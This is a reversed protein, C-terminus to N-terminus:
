LLEMALFFIRVRDMFEWKEEPNHHKVSSEVYKTATLKIRSPERLVRLFGGVELFDSVVGFLIYNM